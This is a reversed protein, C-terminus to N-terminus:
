IKLKGRLFADCGLRKFYYWNYLQSFKTIFRFVIAQTVVLFITKMFLTVLFFLGKAIRFDYIYIFLSATRLFMYAKMQFINKRSFADMVFLMLLFEELSESQVREKFGELRSVMEGTALVSLECVYMIYIAFCIREVNPMDKRNMTM